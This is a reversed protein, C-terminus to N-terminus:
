PLAWVEMATLAPDASVTLGTALPAPTNPQLAYLLWAGWNPKLPTDALTQSGGQTALTLTLRFGPKTEGRQLLRVGAVRVPKPFSLARVPGTYVRELVAPPAVDPKGLLPTTLWATEGQRYLIAGPPATVGAPVGQLKLTLRSGPLTDPLLITLGGREPRVQAVQRAQTYAVVASTPACWLADGQAELFRLRERWRRHNASTPEAEMGHTFDIVWQGEQPARPLGILPDNQKSWVSEDLYNRDLDYLDRLPPKGAVRSASVLGVERLFPQYALYGNPYVFHAPSRRSEREAALVVQSWYLEERFQAPTLGGTPEWSNGIHAYGHNLVAWGQRELQRLQEGELYATSGTGVRLPFVAAGGVFPLAKGGAVGPPADTIHFAALLPLSVALTSSPGDDIEVSYAWSKGYLFPSVQATPAGSGKWRWHWEIM